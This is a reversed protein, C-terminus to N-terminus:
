DGPSMSRRHLQAMALNARGRQSVEAAIDMAEATARALGPVGMLDRVVGYMVAAHAQDEVAMNEFQEAIRRDEDVAIHKLLKDTAMLM